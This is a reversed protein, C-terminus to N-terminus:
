APRRWRQGPLAEAIGAWELELLLALTEDVALGAARALEEIGRPRPELVIALRESPSESRPEPVGTPPGPFRSGHEGPTREDSWGCSERSRWRGAGQAPAGGGCPAPAGGTVRSGSGRGSADGRGEGDPGGTTAQMARLVDAASECLLAGTRLLAHAGRATERDVDGPVALVPRGLRRAAAATSLAGSRTAAEVVVTVGALAAILRNREVFEGRFRPPGSAHESLLGGGRVCLEEALGAHHRPAVEDLGGPLVAVSAGGAALAGRHAAADIGRALGSVVVYGLRALDAGLRGAQAIGYPTAARSGVIAVARGREPLTGRVFVVPPVDDLDRLAVPYGPEDRLAARVGLGRLRAAVVRPDPGRRGAPVVPGAPAPTGPAGLSLRVRAELDDTADM